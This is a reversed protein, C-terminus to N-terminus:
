RWRGSALASGRLQGAHRHAREGDAGVACEVDTGGGPPYPVVFKIPKDPYNAQAQAALPLLLAAGLAAAGLAAAHLATRRNFHPNM